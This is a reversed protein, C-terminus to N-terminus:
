DLVHLSGRLDLIDQAPNAALHDGIAMLNYMIHVVMLEQDFDSSSSLLGEVVKLADHLQDLVQIIAMDLKLLLLM